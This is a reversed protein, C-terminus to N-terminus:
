KLGRERCRNRSLTSIWKIGADRLQVLQVDTCHDLAICLNPYTSGCPDMSEFRAYDERLKALQGANLLGDPTEYPETTYTPTFILDPPPQLRYTAFDEATAPRVKDPTPLAILGHQATAGRLVSAALVGVSDPYNVYFYALTNENVVIYRVAGRGSVGRIAQRLALDVGEAEKKM